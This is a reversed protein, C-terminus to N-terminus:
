YHPCLPAVSPTEELSTTHTFNGNRNSRSARTILYNLLLHHLVSLIEGQNAVTATRIEVRDGRLLSTVIGIKYKELEDSSLLSETKMTTKRLFAPHEMYGPKVCVTDGVFLQDARADEDSSFIDPIINLSLLVKAVASGRQEELPRKEERKQVVVKM